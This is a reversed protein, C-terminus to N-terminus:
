QSSSKEESVSLSYLVYRADTPSPRSRVVGAGKLRTIASRVTQRTVAMEEVLQQQTKEGDKLAIYVLKASPPLDRVAPPADKVSM